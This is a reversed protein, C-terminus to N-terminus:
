YDQAKTSAPIIPINHWEHRLKRMVLASDFHVAGKPFSLSEEFLQVFSKSVTLPTIQWDLFRLEMGQFHSCDRSLSYGVAGKAFFESAEDLSSFISTSPFSSTEEGEFIVHPRKMHEAIEVKYQSGLEKIKFTTRQFIGPFIRGGTWYNFASATDRRPIFVGERRVGKDDWHVAIRHAANESDIGLIRPFGKPRLACFRIMCIGGVGWGNHTRPEFPAPLYKRLFELSFRYNLLIRRDLLGEIVPLQFM